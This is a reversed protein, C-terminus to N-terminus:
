RACRQQGAQGVDQAPADVACRQHRVGRVPQGAQVGQGTNRALLVLMWWCCREYRGAHGPHLWGLLRAVKGSVPGQGRGDRVSILLRWPCASQAAQGRRPVGARQGSM